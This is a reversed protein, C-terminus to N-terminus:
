SFLYNTIKSTIMIAVILFCVTHYEVTYDMDTFIAKSFGKLGAAFFFITFTYNVIFLYKRNVFLIVM